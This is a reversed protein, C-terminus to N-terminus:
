APHVHPCSSGQAFDGLAAVISPAVTADVGPIRM